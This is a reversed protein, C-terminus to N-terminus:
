SASTSWLDDGTIPKGGADKLHGEFSRAPWPTREERADRQPPIPDEASVMKSLLTIQEGAIGLVLTEGSVEVLAISKKPGLYASSLVRILRDKGTFGMKPGLTKKFVYFCGLMLALVVALAAVMKLSSLLLDPAATGIGEPLLPKAAEGGTVTSAPPAALATGVELGPGEETPPNIEAAPPVPAEQGAASPGGGPAASPQVPAPPLPAPKATGVTKPVPSSVAASGATPNMALLIFGAPTRHFEVRDKMSQKADRFYLRLRVTEANFQYLYIEAVPGNEMRMSQKSPDIYAKPIELQAWGEGFSLHRADLRLEEGTRGQVQILVEMGAETVATQISPLYSLGAAGQAEVIPSM